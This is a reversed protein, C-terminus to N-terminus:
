DGDLRAALRELAAQLKEPTDYTGARIELRVRTVLEGRVDQDSLQPNMRHEETIRDSGPAAHLPIQRPRNRRGAAGRARRPIPRNM